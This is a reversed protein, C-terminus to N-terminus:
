KFTTLTANSACRVSGDNLQVTGYRCQAALIKLTKDRFEEDNSEEMPIGATVILRHTESLASFYPQLGEFYFLYLLVVLLFSYLLKLM